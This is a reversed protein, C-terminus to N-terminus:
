TSFITLVHPSSFSMFTIYSLDPYYSLTWPRTFSVSSISISLHHQLTRLSTYIRYQLCSFYIIDSLSLYYLILSIFQSSKLCVTHATFLYHLVRNCTILYLDSFINIYSLCFTIPLRAIWLDFWSKLQLYTWFVKSKINNPDAPQLWLWSLFSYLFNFLKVLYNITAVRM